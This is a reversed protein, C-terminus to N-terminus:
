LSLLLEEGDNATLVVIANEPLIHLDIVYEGSTTRRLKAKAM